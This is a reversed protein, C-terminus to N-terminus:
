RRPEKEGGRERWPAHVEALGVGARFLPEVAAAPANGTAAHLVLGSLIRTAGRRGKKGRLLIRHAPEGPRPHVPLLDLDGFRPAAAELLDALADARAIAVVEGEAALLRAATRFWLELGEEALLHAGRRADGTPATVAAADHFPPNMVLARAMNARLRPGAAPPRDGEGDAAFDTEAVAVRDAFAANAPLELAARAAAALEAEREVLLVRAAPLRAAAVFGAVGAGAGLDVVLGSTGADLAAGLLVAELGARHHGRKPQLAAVRGGLFADESLAAAVSRAEAQRRGAEAEADGARAEPQRREGEAHDGGARAEPQRREGEAHDGGARAEPQRREGEAHDGGARAPPASM